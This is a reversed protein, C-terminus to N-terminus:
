RWPARSMTLGIVQRAGAERLRRAIANLTVGVTFVDDYVVINLDRVEPPSPVDLAQYIRSENERRQALSAGAMRPTAELKTILPPAPHFPYGRTDQIIACKIVWGAHDIDQRPENSPNFAPMPIIRDASAVNPHTDLYGLLVRAFIIGWGWRGNYKLDQIARDLPGTKMAIAENHHFWRGPDNCLGNICRDYASAVAQGCVTCYYPAAPELTEAACRQCIAPPGSSFYACQGCNGFGATPPRQTNAM